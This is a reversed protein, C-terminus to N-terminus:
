GNKVGGDIPIVELEVNLKVKEIWENECVHCYFDMDIEKNMEPHSLYYDFEINSKCNKCESRINLGHLYFRKDDITGELKGEIIM